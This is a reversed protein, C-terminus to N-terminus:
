ITSRRLSWCMRGGVDASNSGRFGTRPWPAVRMNSIQKTYFTHVTAAASQLEWLMLGPVRGQFSVQIGATNVRLALQPNREGIAAHLWDAM